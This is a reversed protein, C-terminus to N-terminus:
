LEGRFARQVLSNFLNDVLDSYHVLSLRRRESRELIECFKLLMDQPPSIFAMGKIQDANLHPQAARRTLPQILRKGFESNILYNYFVAKEYQLTM